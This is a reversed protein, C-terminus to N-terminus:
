ISLNPGRSRISGRAINTATVKAGRTKPRVTQSATPASPSEQGLIQLSQGVASGQSRIRGLTEAQDTKLGAIQTSQASEQEQYQRQMAVSQAEQQQALANRQESLRNLEAQKTRAIQDLRKQENKARVAERKEGGGSCM